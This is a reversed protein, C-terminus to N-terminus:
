PELSISQFTLRMNSACWIAYFAYCTFLGYIVDVSCKAANFVDWAFFTCVDLAIRGYHVNALAVCKEVNLWNIQANQWWDNRWHHSKLQFNEFCVCIWNYMRNFINYTSLFFFFRFLYFFIHRCWVCYWFIISRKLKTKHFTISQNIEPTIRKSDICDVLRGVTVCFHTFWTFEISICKAGCTAVGFRVCYNMDINWCRSDIAKCQPHFIVGCDLQLPVSFLLSFCFVHSFQTFSFLQFFSCALHTSTM